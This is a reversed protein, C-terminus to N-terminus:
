YAGLDRRAHTYAVGSPRGPHYLVTQGGDPAPVILVNHAAGAKGLAAAYAAEMRKHQSEGNQRGACVTAQIQYGRGEYEELDAALLAEQAEQLAAEAAAVAEEAPAALM